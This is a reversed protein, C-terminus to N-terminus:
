GLKKSYCNLDPHRKMIESYDEKNAFEKCMKECIQELGKESSYIELSQTARTIATYFINPSIQEEVSDSIVIRVKKFELGQAKHISAAYAVRFPVICSQQESEDKDPDLGKEISVTIESYSLNNGPSVAVFENPKSLTWSPDYVREIELTFLYTSDTESIDVIKGKTDNYVVNSFRYSNEFIIPDGVSYRWDGIVVSKNKNRTQMVNNINNIGYLGDYNLCLVIEDFGSPSFSFSELPHYYHLSLMNALKDKDVGNRATEWLLLLNKKEDPHDNKVRFISKLIGQCKSPLLKRALSFWNGFDISEIQHEDGALLFITKNIDVSDIIGAMNENSVTSCEDIIILNAPPKDKFKLYKDITMIQNQFQTNTARLNGVASNTRALLLPHISKSSLRKCLQSIFFTKGTGAPGTIIFVRSNSFAEKLYYYKENLEEKEASSSFTSDIWNSYGNLGIKSLSILSSLIHYSSNEYGNIFVYEDEVKIECKDKFKEYLSQNFSLILENLNQYEESLAKLPTFLINNQNVNTELQHFLYENERGVPSIARAVIDKPVIHKAPNFAFPSKEFPIVKNTFPLLNMNVNPSNKFDKQDRILDNRVYSLLLSFIHCGDNHNFIINRIRKLCEFIRHSSDSRSGGLSYLLNFSKDSENVLDLLSLDNNTLYNLFSNYELTNRVTKQYCNALKALNDFECSRIGVRHDQIIRIPMSNGKIEINTQFFSLTQASDRSIFDISYAIFHDFKGNSVTPSLVIEFFTLNQYFIPHEKIVYYKNRYTPLPSKSDFFTTIKDAIKSYFVIDSRSLKPYFSELNHLINIGIDTKVYNRMLTFEHYYNFMLVKASSNDPAQHAFINIGNRLKKIDRYHPSGGKNSAEKIAKQENIYNSDKEEGCKIEWYRFLVHDVLPRINKFFQHQLQDDPYMDILQCIDKDDSEIQEISKM